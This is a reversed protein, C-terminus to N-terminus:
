LTSPTAPAITPLLSFDTCSPSDLIPMAADAVAEFLRPSRHRMRAYANVTNALDQANFTNIIPIAATAINDFLEPHRHDMKAFANALCSEDGQSAVEEVICCKNVVTGIAVRAQM